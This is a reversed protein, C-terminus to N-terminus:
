ECLNIESLVFSTVADKDDGVVNYFEAPYWVSLGGFSDATIGALFAGDFDGHSIEVAVCDGNVGVTVGKVVVDGFQVGNDILEFM